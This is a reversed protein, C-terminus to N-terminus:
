RDTNGVPDSGPAPSIAPPVAPGDTTGQPAKPADPKKANKNMAIIRPGGRYVSTGLSKRSIEEGNRYVVKITEVRQGAGGADIVKRVGYPLSGDHVVKEGNSWSGAGRREFKVEIDDPVGLISFHLRGPEYRSAFAIPVDKNNVITLDPNPFSVAADRGLPVYPVPLSHCSRTGIQLDALLAANYLTTSVQCIGGGVDFDHRGSVYVGAVKYGKATTRQGLTGNFSFKEGPMLIIGNLKEAALKINHSRAVKGTSFTTSFESMEGVIKALEADPIRKPKEILPIELESEGALAQGVLGSLREEDLRLGAQETERRISDGEMWVRAPRNAPINKQVFERIKDMASEDFTIAPEIDTRPAKAGSISRQLSSVFDDFPLRDLTTAVDFQAGMEQATMPEPQRALGKGSLKVPSTSKAVWWQELKAQAEPRTLGALELDGVHTMPLVRPVHQSEFFAFAGGTVATVAVLAILLRAFGKSKSKPKPM